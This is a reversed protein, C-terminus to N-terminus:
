IAFALLIFKIAVSLELRVLARINGDMKKEKKPLSRLKYQM